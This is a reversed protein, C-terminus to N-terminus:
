RDELPRCKAHDHDVVIRVRSLQQLADELARARDAHGGRACTVSQRLAPTASWVQQEDIQGHWLLISVVEQPVPALEADACRRDRDRGTRSGCIPLLREGASEIRM